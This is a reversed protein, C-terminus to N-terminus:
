DTPVVYRLWWFSVTLAGLVAFVVGQVLHFGEARASLWASFRAGRSAPLLIFGGLAIATALGLGYAGLALAGYAMSGVVAVYVLLALYLVKPCVIGYTAALWAGIVAVSRYRAVADTRDDVATGTLSPSVHASPLLRRTLGLEGLAFLMMLMGTAILTIQTLAGMTHPSGVTGALLRNPAGVIVGLLATVSVMSVTLVGVVKLWDRYNRALQTLPLAALVAPLYCPAAFHVLGLLFGMGVGTALSAIQVNPDTFIELLISTAWVSLERDWTYGWIAGVLVAVGFLLLRRPPRLVVSQASPISVSM